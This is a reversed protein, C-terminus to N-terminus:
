SRSYLVKVSLLSNIIVVSFLYDYTFLCRGVVGDSDIKGDNKEKQAM